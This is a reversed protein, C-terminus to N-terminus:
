IQQTNKRRVSEVTEGEDFDKSVSITQPTFLLLLLCCFSFFFLFYSTLKVVTKFFKESFTPKSGFRSPPTKLTEKTQSDFAPNVIIANIFLFM